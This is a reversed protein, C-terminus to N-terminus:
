AKSITTTRPRSTSCTSTATATSSSKEMARRRQHRDAKRTHRQRDSLVHRRLAHHRQDQSRWHLVRSPIQLTRRAGPHHRRTQRSAPRRYGHRRRRLLLQLRVDARRFGARDQRRTTRRIFTFSADAPTRSRSPGPEFRSPRSWQRAPKDRRFRRSRVAHLASRIRHRAGSRSHQRRVHQALGCRVRGADSLDARGAPAAAALGTEM